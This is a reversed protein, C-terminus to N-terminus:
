PTNEQEVTVSEPCIPRSELFGCLDPERSIYILGAYKHRLIRYPLSTINHSLKLVINLRKQIEWTRKVSKLPKLDGLFLSSIKSKYFFLKQKTTPVSFFTNKRGSFFFFICCLDITNQFCFNLSPKKKKKEIQYILSRFDREQIRM